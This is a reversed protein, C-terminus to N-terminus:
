DNIPTMNRNYGKEKKTFPLVIIIVVIVFIFADTLIKYRDGISCFYVDTKGVNTGINEEDDVNTGIDNCEVIWNTEDVNIGDIEEDAVDM